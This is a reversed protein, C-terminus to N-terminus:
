PSPAVVYVRVQPAALWSFVWRRQGGIRVSGEQPLHRPPSGGALLHGGSLVFVSAGGTARVVGVLEHYGASHLALRAAIHMAVSGWTDARLQGCSLAAFARAPQPVLLAVNLTGSPFSGAAFVRAMYTRQGAVVSAETHPLAPPPQLTGMLYSHGRYLEVPVGMFRSVLKVYGTDDQVSMVYRGLKHGHQELTGTVPAIVYPGGVDALVRTGQMVRLRVIHWHPTYVIAAVAARIAASNGSSLANLLAQSHRVHAQDTVTERGSLEDAYIRQAVQEEVDAVTAASQVGCARATDPAAERRAAAPSPALHAATSVAAPQAAVPGDDDADAAGGALAM